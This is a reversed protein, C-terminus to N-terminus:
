NSLLTEVDLLFITMSSSGQPIVTVHSAIALTDGRRYSDPLIRVQDLTVEVLNPTDILPIGFEEQQQNHAIILYQYRAHDDTLSTKFLRQHLDIITVEHGDVHAIGLHSLGSSYVPLQPIIKKVFELRLALNLKGISFVLLKLLPKHSRAKRKSQDTPEFKEFNSDM